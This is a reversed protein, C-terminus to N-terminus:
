ATAPYAIKVRLPCFPQREHMHHIKARCFCRTFGTMTTKEKLGIYIPRLVTIYPYVTLNRISVPVFTLMTAGVYVVQTSCM